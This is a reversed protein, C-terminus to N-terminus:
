RRRGEPSRRPSPRGHRRRAGAPPRGAPSSRCRSASRSRVRSRLTSGRQAQRGDVPQPGRRLPARQRHGLLCRDATSPKLSPVNGPAIAVFLPEGDPVLDLAAAVLRRGLGRGRAPEDVEFAAEWRDALGRGIIVVGAGDAPCPVALVDNRYRDSRRSGRPRSGAKGAPPGRRRWPRRRDGRVRRGPQEPRRRPTRHPRRRVAHGDAAGLDWPASIGAGVRPRRRRRGRPPRRLGPHSGQGHSRYCRSRALRRRRAGTSRAASSGQWLTTPWREVTPRVQCSGRGHLDTQEHREAVAVGVGLDEAGEAALGLVM